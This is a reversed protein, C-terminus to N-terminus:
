ELTIELHEAAEAVGAARRQATGIVLATHGDPLTVRSRPPCSTDLPAFVTTSSVVQSGNPARVLRRKQDVFCTVTVPDGYVDGRGSSGQYPELEVTHPEPLVQALWTLLDM